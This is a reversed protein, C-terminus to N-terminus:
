EYNGNTESSCHCLRSLKRPGLSLLFVLMSSFPLVHTCKLSSGVVLWVISFLSTKFFMCQVEGGYRWTSSTNRTVSIERQWHVFGLCICEFFQSSNPTLGMQHIM